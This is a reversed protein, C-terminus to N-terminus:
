VEQGFATQFSPATFNDCSRRVIYPSAVTNRDWAVRGVPDTVNLGWNAGGGGQTFAVRMPYYVGAQLPLDFAQSSALYATQQNANAGTWGQRANDGVWLWSRDDNPEWFFRYTGTVPPYLYWRHMVSFETCSFSQPNRYITINSIPDPGCVQPFGGIGDTIGTTYLTNWTGGAGPSKMFQPQLNNNNIYGPNNRFVGYEVGQNGCASPAPVETVTVTNAPLTRTQTVPSATTTQTRTATATPATSVVTQVVTVAPYTTQFTTTVTSAPITTQFTTTVTSASQTVVATTIYTSAPQTTAYTTTVTSAPQVSTTTVVLITTATATSAPITTQYTATVTSAALITQYTSTVTRLFTTEYTSIERQTTTVTRGETSVVVRFATSVVFTSQTQVLTSVYEPLRACSSAM